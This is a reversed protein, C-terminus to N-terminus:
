VVILCKNYCHILINESLKDADHELKWYKKWQNSYYLSALSMVAEANEKDWLMGSGKLQNTLNGQKFDYFVQSNPDTTTLSLYSHLELVFKSYSWFADFL